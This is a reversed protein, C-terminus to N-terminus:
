HPLRVSRGFRNALVLHEGAIKGRGACSARTLDPQIQNRETDRKHSGDHRIILARPDGLPRRSAYDVLLV